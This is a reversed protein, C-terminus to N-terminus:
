MRVIDFDVIEAFNTMFLAVRSINVCTFSSMYVIMADIDNLSECRVLIFHDRINSSRAIASM